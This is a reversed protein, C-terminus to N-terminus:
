GLHQSLITEELQRYFVIDWDPVSNVLVENHVKSTAYLDMIIRDYEMPETNGSIDPHLPQGMSRGIAIYLYKIVPLDVMTLFTADTVLRHTGVLCMWQYLVAMVKAHSHLEKVKRIELFLLYAVVISALPLAYLLINLM